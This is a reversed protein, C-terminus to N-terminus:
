AVAAIEGSIVFKANLISLFKSPDLSQLHVIHTDLNAEKEFSMIVNAAGSTKLARIVSSRLRCLAPSPGSGLKGADLGRGFIIEEGDLLKGQMYDSILFYKVKWVTLFTLLM